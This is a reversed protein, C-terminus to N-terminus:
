VPDEQQPHQARLMAAAADIAALALRGLERTARKRTGSPTTKAGIILVLEVLQQRLRLLDALDRDV